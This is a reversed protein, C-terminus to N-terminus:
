RSTMRRYSEFVHAVPKLETVPSAMRAHDTTLYGRRSEAVIGPSPLGILSKTVCTVNIHTDACQTAVGM